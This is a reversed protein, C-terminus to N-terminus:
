GLRCITRLKGHRYQLLGDLYELRRRSLIRRFEHHLLETMRKPVWANIVQRVAQACPGGDQVIYEIVDFHNDKNRGTGTILPRSNGAYEEIYAAREGNRDKGALVQDSTNWLLGRATDFVPAFRMMTMDPAIIVGWNQAHRDNAGVLADFAIMRSLGDRLKPYIDRPIAMEKLVSNVFEFTYFKREAAETKPLQVRQDEESLGFLKSVVEVGHILSEGGRLFIRSMFRVDSPRERFRILRAEAVRLPLMNGIRAILYETVCELPGTGPQGGKPLKSPAKALYARANYTQTPFRILTKPATGPLPFQRVDLEEYGAELFPIARINIDRELHNETRRTGLKGRM